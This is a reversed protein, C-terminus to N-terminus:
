DSPPPQPGEVFGLLFLFISSSTVINISFFLTFLLLLLLVLFYVIIVIIHMTSIIPTIFVITFILSYYCNLKALTAGPARRVVKVIRVHSM